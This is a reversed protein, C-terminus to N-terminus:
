LTVFGCAAFYNKKRRTDVLLVLPRYWGHTSQAGGRYIRYRQRRHWDM